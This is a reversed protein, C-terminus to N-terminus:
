SWEVLRLSPYELLGTTQHFLDRITTVLGWCGGTYAVMLIYGHPTPHGRVPIYEYFILILLQFFRM